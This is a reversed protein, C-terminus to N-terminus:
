YNNLPLFYVSFYAQSTKFKEICEKFTSKLLHINPFHNTFYFYKSLNYGNEEFNLVNIQKDKSTCREKVIM